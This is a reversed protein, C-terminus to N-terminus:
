FKVRAKLAGPKFTKSRKGLKGKGLGGSKAASVSPPRFTTRRGGGSDDSGGRIDVAAATAAARALADAEGDSADGGFSVGGRSRGRGNTPRSHGGRM